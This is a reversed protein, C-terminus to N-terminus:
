FKFQGTFQVRTDIGSQGDLQEKKGWMFEAGWLVNKAPTYLINTSAYSGQRFATGLQGATNDQHHASYGLSTSWKESWYHDYYLFVGLSPVAEAQLNAGPAVDVGGDNM